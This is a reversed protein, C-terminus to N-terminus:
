DCPQKEQTTINSAIVFQDFLRQQIPDEAATREPHWQVAVLWPHSPMEVAEIVGDPAEAVASLGPALERIAQHHDSNASFELQGMVEALRSGSTVSLEHEIASSPEPKHKVTEGVVDPLHVHLTGGLAVNLVQIGRCIGLVPLGSEVAGLALSIEFRDREEDTQYIAEHSEGGHLNPSIDGGGLLLLGDVASLLGQVNDEGAPLLVPMGGARRVTDIYECPVRVNEEQKHEFRAYTTLGICPAAM